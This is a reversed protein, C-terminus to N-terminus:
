QSSDATPTPSTAAPWVHRRLIWWLWFAALAMFVTLWQGRTLNLWQLGIGEDPERFFEVVFRAAAYGFLFRIAAGGPKWRGRWLGPYLWAFLVLGELAAEYLVSPHRPLLPPPSAPFIVAWSVESPRGWLEGNIFNAVRGFFLGVPTVAALGDAMRWFDGTRWAALFGRVGGPTHKAAARKNSPAARAAHKRPPPAASEGSDPTDAVRTDRRSWWWGAAVAVGLIGGHSAMGGKWVEILSWPRAVTEGFNYFFSYGLRGGLVAGMACWFILDSVHEPKTGGLRGRRAVPLLLLWAAIFGALYALGYWRIGFQETFRLAFPDLSHTWHAALYLGM